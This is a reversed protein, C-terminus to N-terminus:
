AGLERSITHINVYSVNKHKIDFEDLKEINEKEFKEPVGIYCKINKFADRGRPKKYPLMGRITRKVIKEPLRPFFPGTRPAGRERRVKYKDIIAKKNGTIVAKESNVVAVEYGLLAQKAVHGALRGLVMNEADIVKM